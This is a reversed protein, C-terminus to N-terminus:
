DRIKRPGVSSTLVAAKLDRAANGHFRDITNLDDLRVVAVSGDQFTVLLRYEDLVAVDAFSPMEIM